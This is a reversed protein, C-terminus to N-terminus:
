GGDRYISEENYKIRETLPHLHGCAEGDKESNPQERNKHGERVGNAHLHHDDFLLFHAFLDPGHFM